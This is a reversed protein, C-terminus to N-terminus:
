PSEPQDLDGTPVGAPFASAWIREREAPGPREFAVIFRIRRTFAPDLNSPKSTALISLGHYAELLQMVRGAEGSKYRNRDDGLSTRSGLLADAEDFFLITDVEKVSSLLRSLNKETEGIWKSVVSSLDVRYLKADLDNALVEAAAKKDADSEGTFIAVMGHRAESGQAGASGGRESQNERAQSALTRLLRLTEDALMVNDWTAVTNVRKPMSEQPIHRSEM